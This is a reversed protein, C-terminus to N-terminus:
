DEMENQYRAQEALAGLYEANTPRGKMQNYANGFIKEIVSAKAYDFSTEIAHRICREVNSPKCNYKEAIAPYLLGTISYLFERDGDIMEVADIIYDFGRLSPSMGTKMLLKSIEKRTM